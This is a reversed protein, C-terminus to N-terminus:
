AVYPKFNAKTPSVDLAPCISTGNPSHLASPYRSKNLKPDNFLQKLLLTDRAVYQSDHKIDYVESVMNILQETSSTTNQYKELKLIFLKSM